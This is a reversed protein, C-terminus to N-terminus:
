HLVPSSILNALHVPTLRNSLERTKLVEGITGTAPPTHPAPMRHLIFCGPQIVRNDAWTYNIGSCAAGPSALPCHAPCPEGSDPMAKVQDWAVCGWTGMICCCRDCGHKGSRVKCVVIEMIERGLVSWTDRLLSFLRWRECNGCWQKIQSGTELYYFCLNPLYM